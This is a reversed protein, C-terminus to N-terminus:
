AFGDKSNNFDVVSTLPLQCATAIAYDVPDQYYQM